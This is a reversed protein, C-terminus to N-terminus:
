DLNICGSKCYCGSILDNAFYGVISLAFGVLVKNVLPVFLPLFPTCKKHVEKFCAIKNLGAYSLPNSREGGSRNKGEPKGSCFLFCWYFRGTEQRGRYEKNDGQTGFVMEFPPCIGDSLHLSAIIPQRDVHLAHWCNM